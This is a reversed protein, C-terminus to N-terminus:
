FSDFVLLRSLLGWTPSLTGLAYPEFLSLLRAVAGLDSLTGEYYGCSLGFDNLPYLRDYSM